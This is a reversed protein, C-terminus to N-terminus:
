EGVVGLVDQERMILYKEGELTIETGAYQGFLVHDGTKVTMEFRGNDNAKGPGTAIVTGEVPLEGKSEPIILGSERVEEQKKASVLVRDNLPRFM